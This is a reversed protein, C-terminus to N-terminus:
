RFIYLWSGLATAILMLGVFMETRWGEDYIDAVFARNDALRETLTNPEGPNGLGRKWQRHDGPIM